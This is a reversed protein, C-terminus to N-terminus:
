LLGPGPAHRGSSGKEEEEEGEGRRRERRRRGGEEEGEGKSVALTLGGWVLKRNGSAVKGGGELDDVQNLLGAVEVDGVGGEVEIEEGQVLGGHTLQLAVQLGHGCSGPGPTPGEESPGWAAM